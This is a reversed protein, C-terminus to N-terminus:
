EPRGIFFERVRQWLSPKASAFAMFAETGGPAETVRGSGLLRRLAQPRCRNAALWQVSVGGFQAIQDYVEGDRSERLRMDTM